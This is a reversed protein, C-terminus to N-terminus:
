AGGELLMPEVALVPGEALRLGRGARGTNPVHPDEHMATGVGHGGLGGPIGYGAGRCVAEVAQSIDGLRGGPRAAAATAALTRAVVRGAERMTELEAPTKLVVM